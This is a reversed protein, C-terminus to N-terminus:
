RSNDRGSPYIVIRKMDGKGISMTKIQSDNELFRYVIRRNAANMSELTVSKNRKKVSKAIQAIKKQLREEHVARYDDIDLIVRSREDDGNELIRNLLHQISNLMRGEKGILFGPKDSGKVHIYYYNDKYNIEISSYAAGMRTLLGGLFGKLIDEEEPIFFKVSADKKGFLGILGQSGKELVSYNIDEKSLNFEKLFSDIITEVSKGERQIEKM